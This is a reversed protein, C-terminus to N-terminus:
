VLGERWGLQLLLFNGERTIAASDKGTTEAQAHVRVVAGHLVVVQLMM